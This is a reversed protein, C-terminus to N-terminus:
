LLFFVELYMAQAVLHNIKTVKQMGSMNVAGM